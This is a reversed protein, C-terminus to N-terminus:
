SLIWSEAAEVFAAKPIPLFEDTRQRVFGAEEVFPHWPAAEPVVLGLSQAGKAAAISAAKELLALVLDKGCFRGRVKLHLRAQRTPSIAVAATAVIREPDGTV